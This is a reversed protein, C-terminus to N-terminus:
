RKHPFVNTRRTTLTPIGNRPQTPPEQAPPEDSDDFKEYSKMKRGRCCKPWWYEKPKYSPCIPISMFVAVFMVVALVFCVGLVIWVITEPPPLTVSNTTLKETNTGFTNTIFVRLRDITSQASVTGSVPGLPIGPPPTLDPVNGGTGPLTKNFQFASFCTDPVVVNDPNGIVRFNNTGNLVTLTYVVSDTCSLATVSLVIEFIGPVSSVFPVSPRDTYFFQTSNLASAPYTALISWTYALPVNGFPPTSGSGDLTVLSNIQVTDNTAVVSPVPCGKLVTLTISCTSSLSSQLSRVAVSITVNNSGTVYIRPTGITTSDFTVLNGGSANVYWQYSFSSTSSANVILASLGYVTNQLVYGRQDGFWAYTPSAVDITCVPELSNRGDGMQPSRVRSGRVFNFNADCIMNGDTMAATTNCACGPLWPRNFPTDVIEYPATARGFQRFLYIGGPVGFSTALDQSFQYFEGNSLYADVNRTDILPEVPQLPVNVPDLQHWNYNLSQIQGANAYAAFPGGPLNAVIMDFVETGYSVWNPDAQPQYIGGTALLYATLNAGSGYLTPNFPFTVRCTPSYQALTSLGYTPSNQSRPAPNQCNLLRTPIHRGTWPINTNNGPPVSSDYNVYTMVPVDSNFAGVIKLMVPQTNNEYAANPFYTATFWSEGPYGLDNLMGMGTFNVGPTYDFIEDFGWAACEDLQQYAALMYYEAFRASQILTGFILTAPYYPLSQFQSFVHGQVNMCFHLNSTECSTDFNNVTLQTGNFNPPFKSMLPQACIPQYNILFRGRAADPTKTIRTTTLIGDGGDPNPIVYTVNKSYDDQDFFNIESICWPFPITYSTPFKWPNSMHWDLTQNDWEPYYSYILSGNKMMDAFTYFPPMAGTPQLILVGPGTTQAPPSRTLDFPFVAQIPYSCTGPKNLSAPPYLPVDNYATGNFVSYTSNQYYQYYLWEGCYSGILEPPAVGNATSVLAFLFFRVLPVLKM